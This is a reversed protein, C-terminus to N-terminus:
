GVGLVHCREAHFSSSRSKGDATHCLCLTPPLDWCGGRELWMGPPTPLAYGLFAAEERM